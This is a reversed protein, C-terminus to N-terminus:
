AKKQIGATTALLKTIEAASEHNIGGRIIIRKALVGMMQLNRGEWQPDSCSARQHGEVAVCIIQSRSHTVRKLSGAGRRNTREVCIYCDTHTIVSRFSVRINASM